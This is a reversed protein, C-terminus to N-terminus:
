NATAIVETPPESRAIVATVADRRGRAPEAPTEAIVPPATPAPAVATRIAREAIGLMQRRMMVFVGFGLMPGVIRFAPSAEGFRVRFREILRTRGGEIPELVFAWSAAFERPTQRLFASSAALGAPLTVSAREAAATAQREVLATDTFLVFARLPELVKVEFGGDPSVPLIDGVATAQLEPRIADVSRSRNDFRDYSYWGARGFGMQVLWPWVAEPPADITIARTEIGTPVPVLDDGALPMAAETPDVGWTRWWRVTRNVTIGAATGIVAGAIAIRRRM